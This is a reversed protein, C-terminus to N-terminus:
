PLFAPFVPEAAALGGGARYRQPSGTSTMKDCCHLEQSGMLVVYPKLGLLM